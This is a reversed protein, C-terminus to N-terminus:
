HCGLSTSLSGGLCWKGGQFVVHFSPCQTRVVRPHELDISKLAEAGTAGYGWLELSCKITMMRDVVPKLNVQNDVDILM